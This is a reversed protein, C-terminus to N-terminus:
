QLPIFSLFFSSSVLLKKKNKILIARLTHSIGHLPSSVLSLPFPLYFSFPILSLDTNYDEKLRRAIIREMKKYFVAKKKRRKWEMDIEYLLFLSVLVLGICVYRVGPLISLVGILSVILLSTVFIEFSKLNMRM